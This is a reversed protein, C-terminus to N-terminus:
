QENQLFFIKKVKQKYTNVNEITKLSDPTVYSLIKQRHNTKRLPQSSKFLSTSTVSTNQVATHVGNIYLPINLPWQGLVNNSDAM